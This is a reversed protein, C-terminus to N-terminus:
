DGEAAETDQRDASEPTLLDEPEPGTQYIARFALPGIVPLKYEEGDYSKIMMYIAFILMLLGPAWILFQLTSLWAALLWFISLLGFGLSSQVAHFKVFTSRKEIMLIFLGLFGFYSAAAVFNEDFGTSSKGYDGMVLGVDGM